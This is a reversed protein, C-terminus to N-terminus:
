QLCSRRGRCTIMEEKEQSEECRKEERRLESGMQTRLEGVVPHVCENRQM